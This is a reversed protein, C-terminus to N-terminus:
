KLMEAIKDLACQADTCSLGTNSNNYSLNAATVRTLTLTCTSSNDMNNNNITITQNDLSNLVASATYGNTCSVSSLYYGTNPTLTFTNSGGYNINVTNSDVLSNNSVISVNFNKLSFNATYSLDTRTGKNVKVNIEPNVGNSGTWGIFNYGVKTPNNLTFENSANFAVLNDAVIGGALDYSINYTSPDISVETYTIESSTNVGDNLRVYVYTPVETTALDNLTISDGNDINTWDINKSMDSMVVVKYQIQADGDSSLKITRSTDWDTTTPTILVENFKKTSYEFCYNSNNGANDSFIVNYYIMTDDKLNNFICAGDQYIGEGDYINPNNYEVYSYTCKNKSNDIGSHEDNLEFTHIISNTTFVKNKTELNPAIYDYKIETYTIADSTNEGDYLRAMIYLPEEATAYNGVQYFYEYSSTTRNGSVSVYEGNEIDIWDTNKSSDSTSIIKFQLKADDTSGSITYERWKNWDTGDPTISINGFAETKASSAIETKNGANDVLSIKYFYEKNDKGSIVCQGGDIIGASGYSTSEGYDCELSELGSREDSNEIIPIVVSKTTTGVNGLKLVPAQTDRKVVIPSSWVTTNGAQDVARFYYTNEQDTNIVWFKSLNTINSSYTDNTFEYHDIDLNDSASFEFDIDKNTWEGSVYGNTNVVLDVPSQTDMHIKQVSSYEGKNGAVDVARFKVNDSSFNNNPVFIFGGETKDYYVNSVNGYETQVEFYAIAVDDTATLKIKHDNRWRTTSEGSLYEVNTISPAQKDLFLEFSTKPSQNGSADETYLIFDGSLTNSLTFTTSSKTLDASVVKETGTICGFSGNNKCYIIKNIGSGKRGTENECTYDDSKVSMTLNQNIYNTTKSDPDSPDLISYATYKAGNLYRLSVEPVERPAENDNIVLEISKSKFGYQWKIIASVGSSKLANSPSIKASLSPVVINKKGGDELSSNAEYVSADPLDLTDCQNIEIKDVDTKLEIAYNISGNIDINENGCVESSYKDGCKLCVYYEYKSKDVKTVIVYSEDQEKATNYCEKKNEDLVADIYNNEVLDKLNIKNAEGIKRPLLTKYDAYYDQAAVKINKELGRYYANKGRGIYRSVASFALTLLVGLIVLVALLEVLTFGKKKM